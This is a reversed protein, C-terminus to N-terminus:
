LPMLDKPAYREDGLQSQDVELQKIILQKALMFEQPRNVCDAAIVRNAKLYFLAFSDTNIMDGRVLVEDYGLSMGAIQLKINYQNSWFWPLAQYSKLKGCLASAAIKAQENCNAVSELRMRCQYLQSPFNSCDGIAVINEDSTFCYEDVLIGNDVALGAEEALEVNPIIGAGIIVLDAPIRSGDSCVVYQVKAGGEFANASMDTLLKVGERQHLRTFFQSIEPAAVRQLVRPAMELITVTLGLQRLVAATELGIYGGGVIVVFKAADLSHQIAQIDKVTRLYHINALEVGPIDVHRARGGTCLALKDYAIVEGSSLTVESAQRDIKLVKQGLKLNIANKQYNEASFIQIDSTSKDGKLFEKSLPPRQYPLFEEEGIITIPGQWGERRLNSSLQAAAHSAGIIVCHKEM